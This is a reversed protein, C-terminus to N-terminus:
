FTFKELFRCVPSKRGFLLDGNEGGGPWTSGGKWCEGSGPLALDGQAVLRGSHFISFPFGFLPVGFLSTCGLLNVYFKM